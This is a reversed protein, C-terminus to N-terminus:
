RNQWEPEQRALLEGKREPEAMVEEVAREMRMYQSGKVLVVDGSGLVQQLKRGAQIADDFHYINEHKFGELAAGESIFKARQGVTYLLDCSKTAQFGAAKHAEVTYKGLEMMDGLVCVRRGKVEIEKLTELAAELAVPSSNYTDDLVLSDKIGTILNMRGPPMRFESLASVVSLLNINLVDGIVLAVLSAYIAQKGLVGSLRVPLIKGDYDLKFSIGEPIKSIEGYIVRMNSARFDASEDFGYTKIVTKTRDGMDRVVPDDANLILTGSPKLASALYSKEKALAQPSTFFEVHVPMEGIRTIVVVDPKLWDAIKKIDDPRDAGVELVLWEPYAHPFLILALGEVINKFWSLPNTWGSLCGLISLPIGIESNYSKLSKRTKFSKSLVAYIAEKTSTKGVSGTVAAIRPRYKVLVLRAEFTIIDVIIKKLFNKM